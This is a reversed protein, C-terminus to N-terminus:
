RINGMIAVTQNDENLQTWYENACRQDTQQVNNRVTRLTQLNKENLTAVIIPTVEFSKAELRDHFKFIQKGFTILATCYITSRLKEVESNGIDPSCLHRTLVMDLQHWHM